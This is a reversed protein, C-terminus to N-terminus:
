LESGYSVCHVVKKKRFRVRSSAKGGKGRGPRCRRRNNQRKPPSRSRHTIPEGLSGSREQHNSNVNTNSGSTLSGEHGTRQCNKKLSRKGRGSLDTTKGITTFSSHEGEERTSRKMELTEGEQAKRSNSKLVQPNRNSAKGRKGPLCKKMKVINGSAMPITMFGSAPDKGSDGDNRKENRSKM